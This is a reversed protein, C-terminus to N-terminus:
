KENEEVWRREWEEAMKECRKCIKEDYDALLKLCYRCAFIDEPIDKMAVYDEFKM